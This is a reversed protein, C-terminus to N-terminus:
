TALRSSVLLLPGNSSLLFREHFPITTIILLTSAERHAISVCVPSFVSSTSMGRLCICSKIDLRRRRVTHAPASGIGYITSFVPYLLPANALTVLDEHMM